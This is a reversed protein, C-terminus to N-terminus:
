ESRLAVIPDIRTARRAPIFSAAVCVLLLIAPAATFTMVDTANTQYLFGRLARALVAAGTLGVGIGVAAATLGDGVVAAIVHPPPAGLAIRVGIDRTQQQVLYSTVAYLGFAALALAVGGFLSLLSMALRREVVTREASSELSSLNSIALQPDLARVVDRVAGALALPDSATRIAVTMNSHQYGAYTEYLEPSGPEDLRRQRVDAVVGVVTEPGSGGDHRVRKGVAREGPWLRAAMSENVIVVGGTEWVERETFLRGDVIPIGMARFYDGAVGNYHVVPEAGPATPRGDIFVRTTWLRKRYPFYRMAGVKSVGPLGGLRAVLSRFFTTRAQAEGYRASPTVIDFTLVHERDYGPNVQLVRAFSRVALGAAALLMVALAAETALLVRRLRRQGPRTGARQPSAEVRTTRLAPMLGSLVAAAVTILVTFSVVRGDITVETLRPIWGAVGPAVVRLVAISWHSILLGATAGAAALVLSETLRQRILRGRSAGLAVRIAIEPERGTGHALHLHAVNACAVLLVCGVAGLLLWLVFRADRVVFAHLPTLRIEYSADVEPFERQLNRHITTMEARAQEPAAQPRLRALVRVMRYPARSARVSAENLRWPTWLDAWGIDADVYGPPAVGVIVHARGDLQLTRGIVQRDAHFRARWLDHSLIVVRADSGPQAEDPSFTRGLHLPAGMVAFYNPTIAVMTVPQPDADTGLSSGEWWIAGAMSEFARARDRWEIYSHPSALNSSVTPSTEGLVVIRDPEGFPLPRLLVGNILSFVATSAGIGSGLTAVMALVFFPRRMILRWTDRLDHAVASMM